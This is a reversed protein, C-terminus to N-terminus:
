GYKAAEEEEGLQWVGITQFNWNVDIPQGIFWLNSYDGWMGALQDSYVGLDEKFSLDVIKNKNYSLTFNTKWSFDKTRINETNLALEFGQNRVSGVNDKLSSYGLHTPVSRSMILDKTLRNYYEISGSIRNNFFGYDLGLNYESTREWGLEDNRLNNPLNGIVENNGFSYYKSGSITGQTSYPNVTDNGTQGYSIRVKLNSLWDAERLFAEESIRWAGAISPFLAWKNGDALKSSGDYRISATVLYRDLLSYNVRALYSMLSSQRFGSTLTTMEGGQLNYWLSNYTLDKSAGNMNETQSQQMSFVGTVDLAHISRSWKYNVINDWVWDTYNDKKLNNTAGAATGQLAKTWVGRYQGIQDNTMNPSFSSRLDVGSVPTIKLYLNCLLNVRNTKNFENKNTVLPNFLGNGAYKWEEEDTVLSNPHQTPRMRFADQLLDSNGTDCVYHTMYLSGGFGVYENADLDIAARLNYRTFEQPNLMGDEFYYGGSLTYSASETGGTASITHNTIFALNSIADIWDYYNGTQVAKLESLDTFIEEDTKYVNGNTARVAERALQVYEDGSMMDLMNTYKRFGTYGSYSIKPKGSVGRKTTVMVVGNTARSGYIATSSADKLIDIKEIDNPNINDLSAGPVGDIVVLPASSGEISSLGRIKIDYGGGPKNNNRLINVGPVAGQLGGVANTKGGRLLTETSVTSIAGTLDSKKVSGYGVVVLEDLLETDDKLIIHISSRNGVVLEQTEYGVYSIQLRDRSSASISFNGELDTVTGTTTGKVVVTAGIVPEGQTDTVTGAVEAPAQLIRQTVPVDPSSASASIGEEASLPASSAAIALLLFCSKVICNRNMM